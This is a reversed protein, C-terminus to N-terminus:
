GFGKVNPADSGMLRLTVHATKPDEKVTKAFEFIEPYLREIDEPIRFQNIEAIRTLKWMIVDGDIRFDQLAGSEVYSKMASQAYIPFSRPAGQLVCWYWSLERLMKLEEKRYQM